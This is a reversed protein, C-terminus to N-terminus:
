KKNHSPLPLPDFGEPPDLPYPYYSCRAEIPCTWDSYCTNSFDWMKVCYGDMCEEDPNQCSSETGYNSFLGGGRVRALLPSPWKKRICKRWSDTDSQAKSTGLITPLFVLLFSKFKM